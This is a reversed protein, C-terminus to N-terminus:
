SGADQGSRQDPREGAAGAHHALTAGTVIEASAATFMDWQEATILPRTADVDMTASVVGADTRRWTAGAKDFVKRMPLNEELVDAVFTTIGTQTAAAGLAGLLLTGLGKGQMDDAVGFAVEAREPHADDRVYRGTGLGRGDTSGITWAFHDVYDINVLYDILRDSPTGSTFFRRRRSEPLLARVEAAFRTRDSRVLPRVFAGTGDGLVLPLPRAVEALRRATTDALRDHVVAISLLEDFAQHDGVALRVASLASVSAVRPRHRLLSLEGLISGPGCVALRRQQDGIGRVVELTGALVIVFRDDTDGQHFVVAGAGLDAEAFRAALHGLAHPDVRDFLEFRALEAAEIVGGTYSATRPASPPCGM